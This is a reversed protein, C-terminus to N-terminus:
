RKTCRQLDLCARGVLKGDEYGDAVNGQRMDSGQCWGACRKPWRVTHSVLLDREESGAELM